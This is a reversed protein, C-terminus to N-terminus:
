EYGQINLINDIRECKFGRDHVVTLFQNLIQSSSPLNDHFLIVDGPKLNKTVRKLIGNRNNSVTDLSRKNWGVCTLGLMKVAKGIKPNTVGFPPRFFLPKHKIVRNIAESAKLIDSNIKQIGLVPFMNSHSFTHNGILHGEAHIKRIIDPYKEAESGICFFTAKVKWRDLVELVDLTNPSPGDDFTIAICNKNNPVSNLSKLFFNLQIFFSGCLILIVYFVCFM